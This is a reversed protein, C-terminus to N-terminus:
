VITVPIDTGHLVREATSGLLVTKFASHGREGIYVCDIDRAEIYALIQEGPIGEEISSILEVGEARARATIEDLAEEGIERFNERVEDPNVIANDYATRTEIVYLAHLTAGYRAAVDIAHTAAESAHESGDTAILVNEYM